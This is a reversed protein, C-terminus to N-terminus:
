PKMDEELLSEARIRASELAEIVDHPLVVRNSGKLCDNATDIAEKIKKEELLAMTLNAKQLATDASSFKVTRSILGGPNFKIELERILHPPLTAFETVASIAGLRLIKNEDSGFRIQGRALPLEVGPIVVRSLYPSSSQSKYLSLDLWQATGNLRWSALVYLDKGTIAVDIDELEAGSRTEITKKFGRSNKLVLHSDHQLPITSVLEIESCIQM